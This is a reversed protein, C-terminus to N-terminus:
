ASLQANSEPAAGHGGAEIAPNTECRSFPRLRDSNDFRIIRYNDLVDVSQTRVSAIMRALVEGALLMPQVWLKGDDPGELYPHEVIEGAKVFGMASYFGCHNSPGAALYVLVASPERHLLQVAIGRWSHMGAGRSLSWHDGCELVSGPPLHSLDPQHCSQPFQELDHLAAGAVMRAAPASQVEFLAYVNSSQLRLRNHTRTRQVDRFSAGNKTRAEDLRQAFIERERATNLQRMEM